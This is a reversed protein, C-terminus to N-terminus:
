EYYSYYYSNTNITAITAGGSSDGPHGRALRPKLLVPSADSMSHSTNQKHIDSKTLDYTWVYAILHKHHEYPTTHKALM